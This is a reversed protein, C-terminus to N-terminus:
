RLPGARNSRPVRTGSTPDAIHERGVAPLSLSTRRSRTTPPPRKRGDRTPSLAIPQHTGRGLGPRAPLRRGLSRHTRRPVIRWM